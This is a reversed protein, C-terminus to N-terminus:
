CPGGGFEALFGPLPRGDNPFDLIGLHPKGRDDLGMRLLDCQRDPTSAWVDASGSTTETALDNNIPTIYCEPRM